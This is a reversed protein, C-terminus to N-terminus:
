IYEKYITRNGKEIDEKREEVDPWEYALKIYNRKVIDLIGLIEIYSFKGENITGIGKDTEYLILSRRNQEHTM